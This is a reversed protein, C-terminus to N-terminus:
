DNVDAKETQNKRFTRCALSAVLLSIASYVFLIEYWETFLSPWAKLLVAMAFGAIGFSMAIFFGSFVELISLCFGVILWFKVTFILEM